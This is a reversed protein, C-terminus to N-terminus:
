WTFNGDLKKLRLSSIIYPGRAISAFLGGAWRKREYDSQDGMARERRHRINFEAAEIMSDRHEGWFPAHAMVWTCYDVFGEDYFPDVSPFLSLSGHTFEHTLKELTQGTKGEVSKCIRTQGSGMDFSATAGAIHMGPELPLIEALPQTGYPGLAQEVFSHMKPAWEEVFGNWEPGFVKCVFRQRPVAGDSATRLMNAVSAPIKQDMRLVPEFTTGRGFTKKYGGEM